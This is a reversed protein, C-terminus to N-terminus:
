RAQTRMLVSTGTHQGGNACRHLSPLAPQAATKAAAFKLPARQVAQCVPRYPVLRAEDAQTLLQAARCRNLGVIPFSNKDIGIAAITTISSNSMATGREVSAGGRYGGTAPARASWEM